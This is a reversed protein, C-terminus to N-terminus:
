VKGSFYARSWHKPDINSLWLHAENNLKKLEDMLGEFQVVTTTTALKWLLDKYEKGKFGISKM